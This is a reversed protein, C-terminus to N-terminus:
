IVSLYEYINQKNSFRRRVAGPSVKRGDSTLLLGSEPGEFRGDLVVLADVGGLIM